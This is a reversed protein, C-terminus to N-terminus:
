IGRNGFKHPLSLLGTKNQEWATPLSNLHSVLHSLHEAWQPDAPKAQMGRSRPCDNERKAVMGMM